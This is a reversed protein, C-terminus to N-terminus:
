EQEEANKRIARNVAEVDRKTTRYGLICMIVYSLFFGLITYGLAQPYRQLQWVLTVIPVWFVATAFFYLINQLIFGLRDIEYLFTMISFGFGIVGYLLIDTELAITPSPFLAAFEPTMPSVHVGCLGTILEILLLCIMSISASFLFSTIGRKLLKM